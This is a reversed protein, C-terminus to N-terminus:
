IRRNEDLQGRGADATEIARRSWSLMAIAGKPGPQQANQSFRDRGNAFTVEAGSRELLTKAIFLGLGMGKYGKRRKAPQQRRRRTFPDGLVPLLDTPYGPGDDAIRLVIRDDDWRADIWVTQEAFDVANQVLNRIGHIIEPARRIIPEDDARAGRGSLDYLLMAGRDAHPAAAEALVASLPAHQVHTDRKGSSGMSQLILRCREAQTRILDADERIEPSATEDDRLEGSVLAITALPTGLEHAAAAVVGGLDTLKQERSLAMQTASLADAMATMERTVRHAYSAQFLVGVCIAAWFGLQFLPPLTLIEGTRTELPVYIFMNVTILTVAVGCLILTARLRLATASIAVQALILSAFPNNLGGTLMLLLSLQVMDFLLVGTLGSENLRKNEPYILVATLNTIIAAAITVAILGIELRLDLFAQAVIVSVIQGGIAVWRLAILTRVRVWNSRRPGAFIVDAPVSQDSLPIPDSM